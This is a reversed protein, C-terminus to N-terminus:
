ADSEIPWASENGDDLSLLRGNASNRLPSLERSPRVGFLWDDRGFLVVFDSAHQHRGTEHPVNEIPGSVHGVVYMPQVLSRFHRVFRTGCTNWVYTAPM